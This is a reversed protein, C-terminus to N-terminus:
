HISKSVTECLFILMVVIFCFVCLHLLLVFVCVSNGHWLPIFCFYFMSVKGGQPGRVAFMFLTSPHPNGEVTFNAFAAAHGEIPQSVKREVSYLQMAGVVRNQQM